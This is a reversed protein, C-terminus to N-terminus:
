EWNKLFDINHIITSNLINHNKKIQNLINCLDREMVVVECYPLPFIHFLDGFDSLKKPERQGLYYKYFIVYGYLRVSLFVNHHMKEPQKIFQELFDKHDFSLWQIVQYHAFNDAQERTYKGSKSPPFNRKLNNLRNPMRKAHQLQDRRASKLKDSSLFDVFSQPGNDELLIANLPYMLLTDTRQKPHARVEESLIEDPNKIIGTPTSILLVFLKEHLGEADSLESVQGGGLGITLDNEELYRFCGPRIDDNKALQSLINTDFYAFNSFTYKVM